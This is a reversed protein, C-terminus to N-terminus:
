CNRFTDIFDYFLIDTLDIVETAAKDKPSATTDQQRAIAAYMISGIVAAASKKAVRLWWHPWPTDCQRGDGNASSSTM